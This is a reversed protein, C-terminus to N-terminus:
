QVKFNESTYRLGVFIAKGLYGNTAFNKFFTIESKKDAKEEVWYSTDEATNRLVLSSRNGSAPHFKVQGLILFFFDNFYVKDSSCITNFETTTIKLYRLLSSGMLQSFTCLPPLDSSTM